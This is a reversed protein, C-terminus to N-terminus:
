GTKRKGFIDFADQKKENASATLMDKKTAVVLINNIEKKNAVVKCLFDAEDQSSLNDSTICAM